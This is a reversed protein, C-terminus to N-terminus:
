AAKAAPALPVDAQPLRVMEHINGTLAAASFRGDQPRLMVPLKGDVGLTLTSHRDVRTGPSLELRFRKLVAPVAIQFLQLSFATGLCMRPGAGFPVYAYPSPRQVLWRDPDFREPDPFLDPMHHTVYLSLIVVTGQPLEHGVVTTSRTSQRIVWVVPPLIRLSEKIVRELLASSSIEPLSMEAHLRGAIDPHQALLLLTWTLGSATTQYAANLLTQLEGIIEDDAIHGAARAKLLLALLDHQDDRLSKQRRDILRHFMAELREGAALFARYREAPLDVPLSQAFDARVYEDLWQQFAGAVDVADAFDDLGFLLRGTIQLALSKMAGALDIREGSRWGGLLEDIIREVPRACAEVSPKSLAPMLLRRHRLHSEGNLGFLGLCFRRQASKKPGPPGYVHFASPDSFVARNAEPGFAFVTLDAGKPYAVMPGYLRYLRTLCGVTDESLDALHEAAGTPIPAGVEM